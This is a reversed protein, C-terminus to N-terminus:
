EGADEEVDGHAELRRLGRCDIPRGSLHLSGLEEATPRLLREHDEYHARSPRGPPACHLHPRRSGRHGMHHAKRSSRPRYEFKYRRRLWGQDTRRYWEALEFTADHPLGYGPAEVSFAVRVNARGDFTTSVDGFQSLLREAEAIEQDFASLPVLYPV